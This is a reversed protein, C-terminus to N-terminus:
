RFLQRIGTWTTPMIAVQDPEISKLRDTRGLGLGWQVLGIGDSYSESSGAGLVQARRGTLSAIGLGRMGRKDAVPDVSYGVTFCPFTGAPVTVSEQALVEFHLIVQIPATVTSQWTKGVFLPADLWLIAPTYHASLGERDFGHFWTDGNADESWYQSLGDDPGSTYHLIHTTTANYETTGLFYRSDTEVVNDMTVEYVRVIGEDLPFYGARAASAGLCLLALTTLRPCRM